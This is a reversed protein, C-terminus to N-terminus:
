LWYSELFDASYPDLQWTRSYTFQLIFSKGRAKYDHRAYTGSKFTNKASLRQGIISPRHRIASPRHRIASPPHGIASPRHRIASPPHGIASPRQNIGDGMPWRDDIM